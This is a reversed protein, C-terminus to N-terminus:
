QPKGLQVTTLGRRECEATIIEGLDTLSALMRRVNEETVGIKQLELLAHQASKQCIEQAQLHHDPMAKLDREVHAKQLYSVNEIRAM